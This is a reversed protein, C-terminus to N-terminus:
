AYASGVRISLSKASQWIGPHGASSYLRIGGDESLLRVGDIGSFSARRKDSSYVFCLSIANPLEGGLGLGTLFRLIITQTINVSFPLSYGRGSLRLPAQERIDIFAKTKVPM